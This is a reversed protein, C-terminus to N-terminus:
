GLYTQFWFTEVRDVLWADAPLAVAPLRVGMLEMFLSDSEPLREGPGPLIAVGAGLVCCPEHPMEVIGLGRIECRGAIAAHPGALLRGNGARLKVRDDAVLAAHRGRGRWRALLAQALASKGSGSEGQILLGAAGLLVCGAHLTGTM